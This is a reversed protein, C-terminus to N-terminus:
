DAAFPNELFGPLEAAVEAAPIGPVVVGRGPSTPLVWDLGGERAKKDRGMLALLEAPPLMPLPPLDLRGILTRLREGVGRELGRRGALRLAFLIGYGVAEGHRLGQYGLATEIAHGLTHGFNLLARAGREDPDSEVVAAKAAAGAAVVRALAPPSGALIDDLHLEIDALLDLDLLAAMKIAEVLGSRLEERPLTALWSTDSVVLLPHHFLGVSNKAQPMDVATKGGISADVQALLTTPLQAYEIGRLFCGAVFGGLDGVSGGGFTILRSDRKGGQALMEAWLWEARQLSKAPEGDEVELVTLRAAQPRLMEFARGHLARVRPTTIAFLSRGSLWPGLRAAAAVLAGDGVVIATSGAPHRLSLERLM